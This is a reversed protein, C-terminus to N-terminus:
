KVTSVSRYGRGRGSGPLVVILAVAGVILAAAVLTRWTVSEGLISWGLFVAVVPNVYAYTSVLSTRAHRLLWTYSAFGVWSGIVILYIWGAISEGSVSSLRFGSLEGGVVGMVMLVAGGTIMEMGTAVLPRRPLPLSRSLVSGTAWCLSAGLLVAIGAPDLSRGGASGSRLLLAVGGFGVALGAITQPRMPEEGRLSAIVAMWIPVSAIILSAVGTPVRQEAWSVGGNGCALLLTGVLATARWQPWGLADGAGDGRRVSWAFLLGGAILFRTGAMLFPPITRVAERIGLYTSGWVLYVAGLAAWVQRTTPSRKTQVSGEDVLVVLAEPGHFGGLM